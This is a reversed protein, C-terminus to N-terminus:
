AAQPLDDRDLDGMRDPERHRSLIIVAALAVSGATIRLHAAVERLVAM